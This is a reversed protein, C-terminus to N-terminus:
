CRNSAPNGARVLTENDPPDGGISVVKATWLVYGGALTVPPTELQAGARTFPVRYTGEIGPGTVRVVATEGFHDDANYHPKWTFRIVATCGTPRVKAALAQLYYVPGSGETTFTEEALTAAGGGDDDRTLAYAAGGAIGLV